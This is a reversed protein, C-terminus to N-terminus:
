PTWGWFNSANTRQGGRAAVIQSAIDPEQEPPAAGSATELAPTGGGAPTESAVRERGLQALYVQEVLTAPVEEPRQVQLGLSQALKVADAAVPGYVEDTGLAPYREVLDGADLENNLAAYGQQLQQITQQLPATAQQIANQFLPALVQQFQAIENEEYGAEHLPQWPNPEPPAEPTPLRGELGGIREDQAQFRQDLMSEIRDYDFGGGQPAGEPAAQSGPETAGQPAGQTTAAPAASGGPENGIASM